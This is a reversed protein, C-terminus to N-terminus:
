QMKSKVFSSILMATAGIALYGGAYILFAPERWDFFFWVGALFLGATIVPLVWLRRISKGAFMGCVASFVPNIAFFLIFCVGMANWGAFRLAAWPGGIMLLVASFSWAIIQKM